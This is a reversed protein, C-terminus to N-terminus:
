FLAFVYRIRQQEYNLVEMSDNCRSEISTKFQVLIIQLTFTHFYYTIVNAFTIQTITNNRNFSEFYGLM